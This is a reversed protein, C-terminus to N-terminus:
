NRARSRSRGVAITSGAAVTTGQFIQHYGCGSGEWPQDHVLVVERPIPHHLELRAGTMRDILLDDIFLERRSGIDIADAQGAWGVASLSSLLIVVFLSRPLSM